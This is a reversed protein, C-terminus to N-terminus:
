PLLEDKSGARDAFFRSVSKRKTAQQVLSNKSVGSGPVLACGDEADNVAWGSSCSQVACGGQACTVSDVGQIATCDRGVPASANNPAFPSPAMCGGCSELDNRTDVCEFATSDTSGYVGCVSEHPKCSAQARNLLSDARAALTRPIASGCTSGPPLCKGNCSVYPPACVCQNGQKVYPPHCQFGCPESSSCVPDCNDPYTCHQSNPGTNILLSLVANILASGYKDGLVKLQANASLDLPLASLCLCINLDVLESLPIGLLSGGLGIDADLYVCVDLLARREHHQRLTLANRAAPIEATPTAYKRALKASVPLVSSLSLLQSAALAFIFTFSRM